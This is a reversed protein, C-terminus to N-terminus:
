LAETLLLKLQFTGSDLLWPVTWNDNVLAWSVLAQYSAGECVKLELNKENM